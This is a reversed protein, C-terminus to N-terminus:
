TGAPMAPWIMLAAIPAIMKSNMTPSTLVLNAQLKPMILAAAAVIRLRPELPDTTTSHIKEGPKPPSLLFTTQAIMRVHGLILYLGDKVTNAFPRTLPLFIRRFHEHEDLLLIRARILEGISLCCFHLPPATVFAALRQREFFEIVAQAAEACTKAQIALSLGRAAISIISRM